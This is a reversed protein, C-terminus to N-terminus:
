PKMAAKEPDEAQEKERIQNALNCVGCMDQWTPQGCQRCIGFPESCVPPAQRDVHTYLFDRKTGPMKLELLELAEKMMHSTAGRSLPCKATFPIIGKLRCYTIIEYSDVRYLPKLKAPMAPHPSPLFPYLKDMYRTRHRLINGLLRGAEDDLNHGSALITFGEAVTLRNLYQRKLMGCLSCISRRSKRMIEPVPWGFVEELSHNSWSLGRPVAFDDIARISEESFNDIGLSLHVGRTEYGLTHLVDWLALSDKGGSVAVFIPVDRPVALKKMARAVSTEFFRIFCDPCFNAHHQPMRVTAQGKCRMCKAEPPLPTSPTTM